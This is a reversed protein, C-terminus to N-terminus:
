LVGSANLFNERYWRTRWTLSKYVLLGQSVKPFIHFSPILALERVRGSGKGVGCFRDSSHWSWTVGLGWLYIM